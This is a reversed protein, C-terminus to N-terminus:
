EHRGCGMRSPRAMSGFWSTRWNHLWAIHAATKADNPTQVYAATLTDLAPQIHDYDGGHFTTWFLEDAKASSQLNL